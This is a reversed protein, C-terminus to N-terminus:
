KAARRGFAARFVALDARGLEGSLVLIVVYLLAVGAAFVPVMLKGLYPVYRGVVGLLAM